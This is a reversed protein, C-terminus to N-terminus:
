IYRNPPFFTFYQCNLKLLFFISEKDFMLTTYMFRDDTVALFELWTICLGEGLETLKPKEQVLNAQLLM